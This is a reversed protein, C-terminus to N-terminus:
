TEKGRKKKLIEALAANFEQWTVVQDNKGPKATVIQKAM